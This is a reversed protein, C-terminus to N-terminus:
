RKQDFDKYPSKIFKDFMMKGKPINIKLFYNFLGM